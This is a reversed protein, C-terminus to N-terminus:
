DQMACNGSCYVYGEYRALYQPNGGLVWYKFNLTGKWGLRDYYFTSYPKSLDKITIDVKVYKSHAVTSTAKEELNTPTFTHGNAALTVGSSAILVLCCVILSGFIKKMLIGGLIKLLNLFSVM